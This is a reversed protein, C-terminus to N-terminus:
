GEGAIVATIQEALTEVGRITLRMQPGKVEVTLDAILERTKTNIVHARFYVFLFSAKHVRGVVIWDGGAERGLDAAIDHHDFLYGFAKDASERAESSIEAIRYDYETTLQDRLLPAIAATREQEEALGPTYTLDHLEFDLIAISPTPAPPEASLAPLPAAIFVVFAITVVCLVAARPMTDARPLSM